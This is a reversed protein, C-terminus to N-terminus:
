AGFIVRARHELLDQKPRGRLIVQMQAGTLKNCPNAAYAARFAAHRRPTAPNSHPKRPKSRGQTLM